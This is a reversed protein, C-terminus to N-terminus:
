ERRGLAIVLHFQRQEFLIHAFLCSLIMIPKFFFDPNKQCRRVIEYRHFLENLGAVLIKVLENKLIRARRPWHKLHQQLMGLGFGKFADNLLAESSRWLGADKLNENEFFQLM